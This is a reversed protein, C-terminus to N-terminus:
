DGWARFGEIASIGILTGLDTGFSTGFGTGSLSGQISLTKLM